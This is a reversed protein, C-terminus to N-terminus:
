KESGNSEVHLMTHHKKSCVQCRKECPCKAAAHQRSFCNICKGLAMIYNTRELFSRVRLEPCLTSLHGTKDCAYCRRVAMWSQNRHGTTGIDAHRGEAHVTASLMARETRAPAHNTAPRETRFNNGPKAKPEYYLTNALQDLVNCLAKWTPIQQADLRCTIQAATEEDLKSLVFSVIMGDEVASAAQDMKGAIQRASSTSTEVADILRMLATSSAATLKPLAYLQQFHGLFAVRKKYFREELRKWADQFTMGANEFAECSNRAIECREFCQMLFAYRDADEELGAVRKNFRGAFAPWESPSGSFKPLDLRPLHNKKAVAPLMTTDLAPTTFINGPHLEALACKATAYAETFPVRRPHPGALGELQLLANRGDSWLSELIEAKISAMTKSLKGERAEDLIAKVAGELATLQRAVEISHESDGPTTM